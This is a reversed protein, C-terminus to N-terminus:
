VWNVDVFSVMEYDNSTCGTTDSLREGEEELGGREDRLEGEVINDVGRTNSGIDRVNGSGCLDSAVKGLVIAHLLSERASVDNDDRGTDGTRLAEVFWSFM